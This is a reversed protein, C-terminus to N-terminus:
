KKNNQNESIQKCKKLFLDLPLSRKMLNCDACCPVSNSEIYGISNDVRDFGVTPIIENCYHCNAKVNKKFFDITLTFELGRHPARQKYKRHVDKAIFDVDGLNIKAKRRSKQVSNVRGRVIKRCEESCYKASHSILFGDYEKKCEACIRM